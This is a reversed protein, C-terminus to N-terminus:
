MGDCKMEEWGMTEGEMENWEIESCGMEDLGTGSWRVWRMEVMEGSKMEGRRVGNWGM